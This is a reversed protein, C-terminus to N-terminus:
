RISSCGSPRQHSDHATENAFLWFLALYKARPLLSRLRFTGLDRLRLSRQTGLSVFHGADSLFGISSVGISTVIYCSRDGDLADKFTDAADMVTGTQNFYNYVYVRGAIGLAGPSFSVHAWKCCQGM